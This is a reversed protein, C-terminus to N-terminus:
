NALPKGGVDLVSSDENDKKCIPTINEYSAKGVIYNLNLIM